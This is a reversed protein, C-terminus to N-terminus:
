ICLSQISKAHNGLIQAILLIFNTTILKKLFFLNISMSYKNIFCSKM